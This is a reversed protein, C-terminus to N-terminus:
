IVEEQLLQGGAVERPLDRSYPTLCFTGIGMCNGFQRRSGGASGFLGGADDDFFAVRTFRGSSPQVTTFHIDFPAYDKVMNAIVLERVATVDSATPPTHGNVTPYASLSFGSFDLFVVHHAQAPVTWSLAALTLAILVRYCFTFLIRRFKLM